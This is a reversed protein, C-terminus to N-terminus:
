SDSNNMAVEERLLNNEVIMRQIRLQIYNLLKKKKIMEDELKDYESSFYTGSNKIYDKIAENGAQVAGWSVKQESDDGTQKNTDSPVFVDEDNKGTLGRSRKENQPLGKSLPPPPLSRDSKVINSTAVQM